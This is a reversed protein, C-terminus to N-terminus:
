STKSLGAYGGPAVIDQTASFKLVLHLVIASEAPFM